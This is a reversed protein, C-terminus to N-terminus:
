LLVASSGFVVVDLFLYGPFIYIINIIILLSSPPFRLQRNHLIM